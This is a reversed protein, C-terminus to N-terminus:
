TPCSAVDAASFRIEVPEGPSHMRIRFTDRTLELIDVDYEQGEEVITLQGDVYSWSGFAATAHPSAMVLTGESLFVRLGGPAIQESEAVVWVRDVFTGPTAVSEEAEASGTESGPTADPASCGPLPIAVALITALALARM